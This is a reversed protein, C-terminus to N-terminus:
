GAKFHGIRMLGPFFVARVKNTDNYELAQPIVAASMRAVSQPRAILEYARSRRLGSSGRKQCSACNLVSLRRLRAPTRSSWLNQTWNQARVSEALIAETATIRACKHEALFVGRQTCFVRGIRSINRVGIAPAAWDM